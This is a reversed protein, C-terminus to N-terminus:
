SSQSIQLQALVGKKEPEHRCRPRRSLGLLLHRIAVGSRLAQFLRVECSPFCSHEARM